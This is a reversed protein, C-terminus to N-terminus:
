GGQTATIVEVADGAGLAQEAWRRRPVVADNVAVAIGPQEPDLGLLRLADPLTAESSLERREGNLTIPIATATHM